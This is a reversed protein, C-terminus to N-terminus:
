HWAEHEQIFGYSLAGYRIDDDTKGRQFKEKRGSITIVEMGNPICQYWEQPFLWHKEKTFRHEDWVQCGIKVLSEPRLMKILDFEKRTRPFYTVVRGDTRTFQPTIFVAKEGPALGIARGLDEMFDPDDIDLMLPPLKM